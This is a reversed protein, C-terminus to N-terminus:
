LDGVLQRYISEVREFMVEKSFEQCARQAGAGALRRRLHGDGLLRNLAASLAAPDRPPVVLGTIGDLNVYSTGTGLETSIVPKECAM